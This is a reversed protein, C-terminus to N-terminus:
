TGYDQGWVCDPASTRIEAGSAIDKERATLLAAATPSLGRAWEPDLGPPQPTQRSVGLDRILGDNLGYIWGHVCLDQGRQWAGQVVTSQCTNAVQDVVNLECLLDHRACEDACSDLRRQYKDRTVRMQALWNDALGVRDGSLVAKVGSCGYHGCVIIHKVKLVDVAFQMASLCNMDAPQVMNAVNRHVFVEGPPLDTIINAPVRSDSCGVWFYAPAQQQALRQFFGPDRARVDGAWAQNKQLLHKLTGM